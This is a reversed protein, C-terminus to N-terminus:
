SLFTLTMMVMDYENDGFSKPVGSTSFLSGFDLFSGTECSIPVYNSFFTGTPVRDGSYPGKQHCHM